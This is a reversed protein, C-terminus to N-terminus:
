QAELRRGPRATARGVGRCDDANRHECQTRSLRGCWRWDNSAELDFTKTAFNFIVPQRTAADIMVIATIM